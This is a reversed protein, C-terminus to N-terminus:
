WKGSIDIISINQWSCREHMHKVQENVQGSGEVDNLFGFKETLAKAVIDCDSLSPRQVHTMLMTALTQVVYKRDCDTLLKKQFNKEMSVRFTPIPFPKPVSGEQM